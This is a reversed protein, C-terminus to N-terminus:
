GIVGATRGLENNLRELVMVLAYAADRNRKDEAGDLKDYLCAIVADMENFLMSVPGVISADDREEEPAAPPPMVAALEIALAKLEHPALKSM